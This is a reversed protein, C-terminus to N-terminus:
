EGTLERDGLGIVRGDPLCLLARGAWDMSVERRVRIAESRCRVPTTESPSAGRAVSVLSLAAGSTAIAVIVVVVLIEILTFGRAKEPGTRRGCPM